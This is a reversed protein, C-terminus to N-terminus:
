EDKIVLLFNESLNYSSKYTAYNVYKIYFKITLNM